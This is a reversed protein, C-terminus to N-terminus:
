YIVFFCAYPPYLFAVLGHLCKFLHTPRVRRKSNNVINGSLTGGELKSGVFHIDAITGENTITGTLKGGTLTTSAGITSNSILGENEVVNGEFVAHSISRNEEINMDDTIAQGGFNNPNAAHLTGPIPPPEIETVNVTFSQDVDVRGDNVRLAIDYNIAAETPTGSLIATGDSKDILTLWEPKLPATITLKDGINIDSFITSRSSTSTNFWIEITYADQAFDIGGSDIYDNTGDFDLATGFGAVPAAAQVLSPPAAIMLLMAVLLAVLSFRQTISITNKMMINM